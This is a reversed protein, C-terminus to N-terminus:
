IYSSCLALRLFFSSDKGFQNASDPSFLLFVPFEFIKHEAKSLVVNATIYRLIESSNCYKNAKIFNVTGYVLVHFSFIGFKQSFMSILIVRFNGLPSTDTVSFFEATNSVLSSMKIIFNSAGEPKSVELTCFGGPKKGVSM